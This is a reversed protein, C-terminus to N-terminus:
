PKSPTFRKMGGEGFLLWDGSTAIVASSARSDPNKLSKFSVGRDRSELAAGDQGVLLVRGDELVRGGFLSSLTGTEVLTWSVGHDVSRVLKGRMGFALVVGEELPLVGFYSGKYPSEAANWTLGGDQSRLLTGLEGVIMLTGDTLRTIANFHRDEEFIKRGQWSKGGDATQLFTGYAGIAFGQNADAFWVDLLPKQEDPAKYVESWNAGGDESKLIVSDHGVAWGLKGDLFYVNSLLSQAPSKGESWSQGENDSVFVRGAEGVAVIRQGVREADLVLLKEIHLSTAPMSPGHRASFAYSAAVAVFVVFILGIVKNM